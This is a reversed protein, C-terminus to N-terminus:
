RIWELARLVKAAVGEVAEINMSPGRELVALSGHGPVPVIVGRYGHEDFRTSYKVSEHALVLVTVPGNATQVVLHPVVHGRFTCSHVYSVLGADPRLELHSASLVRDLKPQSVAVDTRAWADPEGAMHNVVDAALSAGPAAIWLGAAVSAGLLISAAIAFGRRRVRQRGDGRRWFAGGPAVANAPWAAGPSDVRLAHELRSEFRLLRQTYQACDHCRAAHALMEASPHLPDALIARRYDTCDM